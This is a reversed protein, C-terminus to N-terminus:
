FDDDLGLDDYNYDDDDDELNTEVIEEEEEIVEEEVTHPQRPIEKHFVKNIMVGYKDGVIVLEGFALDKGDIHLRVQNDVLSAVEVVLGETMNRLEGLPLKIKKFEAAVEVQISDWIAEGPHSAHLIDDTMEKYEESHINLVISQDPSSKFKVSYKDNFVKMSNLNSNDLILVDNPGLKKLDDFTIIATGLFINTEATANYYHSLNVPLDVEIPDPKKLISAPFSIIIKGCPKNNDLRSQTNVLITLHLLDKDLDKIRKIKRTEIFAESLGRYLYQTYQSLVESEFKTINKFKFYKENDYRAGLSEDLFIGSATNSVRIQIQCKESPAIQTVFYDNEKWFYLPKETVGVVYLNLKSGFFETTVNTLSKNLINRLWRYFYISLNRPKEYSVQISTTIEERSTTVNM